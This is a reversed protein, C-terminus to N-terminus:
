RGLPHLSDTYTYSGPVVADLHLRSMPQERFLSQVGSMVAFTVTVDSSLHAVCQTRSLKQFLPQM